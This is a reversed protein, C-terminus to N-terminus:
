SLAADRSCTSSSSPWRWRARAGGSSRRTSSTTRGSTPSSECRLARRAVLCLQIAPTTEPPAHVSARVEREYLVHNVSRLLVEHASMAAAEPASQAKEEAVSQVASALGDLASCIERESADASRGDVIASLAGHARLSEDGDAAEKFTSACTLLHDFTNLDLLLRLGVDFSTTRPEQQAQESALRVLTSWARQMQLAANLHANAPSFPEPFLRAREASFRELLRMSHAHGPRASDLNRASRMLSRYLSYQRSMAM